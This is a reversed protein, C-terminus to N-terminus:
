QDIWRWHSFVLYVKLFNKFKQLHMKMIKEKKSFDFEQASWDSGEQYKYYRWNLLDIDTQLIYKSLSNEM